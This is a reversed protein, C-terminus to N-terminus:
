GTSSKASSEGVRREHSPNMLLQIGSSAGEVGFIGEGTSNDFLKEGKLRRIRTALREKTMNNETSPEQTVGQM